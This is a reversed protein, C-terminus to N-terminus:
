PILERRVQEMLILETRLHVAQMDLCVQFSQFQANLGLQVEELTWGAVRREGVEGDSTHGVDGYDIGLGFKLQKSIYGRGEMELISVVRHQDFDLM